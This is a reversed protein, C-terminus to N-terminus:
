EVKNIQLEKFDVWWYLTNTKGTQSDIQWDFNLLKKLSYDMETM